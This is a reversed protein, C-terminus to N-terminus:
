ECQLGNRGQFPILIFQPMNYLLRILNSDIAVPYSQKFFTLMMKNLFRSQQKGRIDSIAPEACITNQLIIKRRYYTYFFLEYVRDRERSDKLHTQNLGNFTM